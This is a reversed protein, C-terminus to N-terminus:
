DQGLWRCDFNVATQDVGTVFREAGGMVVGSKTGALFNTEMMRCGLSSRTNDPIPNEICIDFAPEEDQLALKERAQGRVRLRHPNLSDRSIQEDDQDSDKQSPQQPGRKHSHRRAESHILLEQIRAQALITDLGELVRPVRFAVDEKEVCAIQGPHEMAIKTNRM